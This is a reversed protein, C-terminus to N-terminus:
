RADGEEIYQNIGNGKLTEVENKLHAITAAVTLAASEPLHKMKRFKRRVIPSAEQSMIGVFSPVYETLRCFSARPSYFASTFLVIVSVHVCM